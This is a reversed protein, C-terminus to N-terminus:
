GKQVHRLVKWVRVSFGVAVSALSLFLVAANGKSYDIDVWGYGFNTGHLLNIFLERPFVLLSLVMFFGIIFLLSDFGLKRLLSLRSYLLVAIGSALAVYGVPLLFGWLAGAVYPEMMSHYVGFPVFLVAILVFGYAWRLHRFAM